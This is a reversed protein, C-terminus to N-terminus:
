TFSGRKRVVRPITALVSSMPRWATCNDVRVVEPCKGFLAIDGDGDDFTTHFLYGKRQEVKNFKRVHLAPAYAVGCVWTEKKQKTSSGQVEESPLSTGVKFELAQYVYAGYTPELVMYFEHKWLMLCTGIREACRLDMCPLDITCERGVFVLCVWFKLSVKGGEGM